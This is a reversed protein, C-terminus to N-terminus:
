LLNVQTELNALCFHLVAPDVYPEAVVVIATEQANPRESGEGTEYYSKFRQRM